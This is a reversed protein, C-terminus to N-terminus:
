WYMIFHQKMPLHLTGQAHVAQYNWTSAVPQSKHWSASVYTHAGSFVALVNSNIEFAKTHEQDRMVHALLYIKGNRDEILVPVHTAVPIGRANCGCLTIFPHAQMYAIVDM